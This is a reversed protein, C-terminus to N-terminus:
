HQYIYKMYFEESTQIILYQIKRLHFHTKNKFPKRFYATSRKQKLVDDQLDEIVLYLGIAILHHGRFM